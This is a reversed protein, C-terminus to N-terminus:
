AEEGEKMYLRYYVGHAEMLESHSGHEAVRGQDFVYIMDANEITSLRHAITIVTKSESIREIAKKILSETEVDVASTPEDLLLIPANKLFARAISIRQRQGGSLKAGREGVYTDYGEPLNMIFDHINASRCAEKVEILTTGEKGYAVNEAITGPFLYVNQSVLALQNRLKKIDWDKTEHGYLKYSGTDPTYFGCLIRFVTSKGGGSSGVFATNKGKEVKLSLDKFIKNDNYGFTVHELEIVPHDPTSQFENHGSPEDPQLLIEDLRVFSVWHERLSNIASPIEGFPHVIRDLLIAFALLTGVTMNGSFVEYLAFLYCVVRPIWRIINGIIQAKSIIKTRIYENALIADVVSDIRQNSVESLNYTRGALMGNYHDFATNEMADYLERRNGAFQGMKKSSVNALWLLLPYCIVTVFFLRYDMIFIFVGVTAITIISMTLEPIVDAFLVEVQSVDAVLKNMISGTGAKDFYSYQMRVLKSVLMNKIGTQVNISFTSKMYSKIFAAITGIFTLVIFLGMVSKLEISTGAFLNDTIKAIQNSGTVVVQTLLYSMVVYGAFLYWYKKIPHFLTEKKM